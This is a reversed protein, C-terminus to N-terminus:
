PAALLLNHVPDDAPNLSDWALVPSGHGTTAAIFFGDLLPGSALDNMNWAGPGMRTAVDVDAALGDQYAIVPSDNVLYIAAAAGVPHPRDGSREGDDVVEPTGATGANWSTYMVENGVVDQYAVHVTGDSAVAASTWMGRNEGPTGGDLVTPTFQSSQPATEVGLVLAGATRDYYSIALRTDTLQVLSPFLGTGTPVDYVAPTAVSAVCAGNYCVDASGCGGSCDTTPTVCTDVDSGSGAMCEDGMPCLGGCSAVETVVTSITWDSASQPDTTTARALRLETSVHGMEDPVGIADYAITPYQSGDTIMHAFLGIQEGAINPDVVYSTWNGNSEFAYKLDNNDRDQYAVRGTHNSLVIATWAGVNPGADTVGGRWTSPDYTATEDPVGDISKYTINTMDTADAIVLDGYKQDYTAVLVRQDDGAISTWRGISGTLTGEMCASSGCPNHSGCSCGPLCALATLWTIAGLRKVGRRIRRMPLLILALVLAFPATAGFSGGTNCACGQTGAMAPDALKAGAPGRAPLVGMGIPIAMRAPTVDTTAPQGALRSRVEVEHIGPLWFTNPSLTPHANKSWATWTGHDLRLSFELKSPDQDIAGLTLSVRAPQAGRWQTPDRAIKVDPEDVNAVDVTTHVLAGPNAATTLNAFIALFDGVGDGDQDDVATVSTVSLNLGGLSPLNITPLASALDPLVLGLLTPFLSALQAPTETVAESNKVSLNTFANTTDGLVPELAGGTGVQMGIPLDVDAVVTFVRIPQFDVKAFFDIELAAFKVDLLPDTLVADGSGNTTFTNTGLTITPPTQPRLGISMPSDNEVLKTLSRSLLGVTDTDLQSVQDHTITLCFLGGEYGAYALQALESKHLGIGVDFASGTDPRTNGEFYTSRPVSVAAPETAPPGCMDRASGGPEMGGLLGLSIGTAGSDATTSYGGAVEYLELGGTTSPSFSAFLGSAPLLGDLGVEQMCTSGEMCQGNTCATGFPACDSAVTCAKCLGDLAGGLASSLPAGLYGELTSASLLASAGYCILLDTGNTADQPALTYDSGELGTVAASGIAIKTTGATADQDFTVPAAITLDPTTGKTTDLTMLCNAGFASIVLPDATSIRARITVDLEGNPAATNQPALVLRPLDGTHDTLDINIPGCNPIAQNNECCISFDSGCSDIPFAIVGSGSGGLLTGVLAAPDATITSLASSTVRIQGINAVRKTAPFGGPISTM